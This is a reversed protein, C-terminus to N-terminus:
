WTVVLRAGGRGGGGGGCACTLLPGFLHFWLKLAPQIFQLTNFYWMPIRCANCLYCPQMSSHAFSNYSSLMHPPPAITPLSKRKIEVLVITGGGVVVVVVVVQVSTEEIPLKHTTLRM